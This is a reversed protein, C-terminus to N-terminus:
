RSCLYVGKGSELDKKGRKKLSNEVMKERERVILM